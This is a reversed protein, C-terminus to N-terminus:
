RNGCHIEGVSEGGQLMRGPGAHKKKLNQKDQQQAYEGTEVSWPQPNLSHRM